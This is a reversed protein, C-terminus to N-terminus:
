PPGRMGTGHAEFYGTQKFDLGASAYTVRILEEQAKSSPVTIGIKRNSGQLCM